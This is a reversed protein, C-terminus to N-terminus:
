DKLVAAAIKQAIVEVSDRATEFGALDPLIGSYQAVEEFTVGHLVPILTEKHLLAGLERETWFRGVLYAPTLLAIGARAKQLGKDMQLAQSKGPTVAIADFWVTVGLAELHIRLQDGIESGDIRAYSLFADCERNDHQALADHVRDVLVQERPTYRPGSSATRLQRNLDAIVARNHANVRGAERNYDAVVKKNHQDVKRNHADVRRKNERNVRDVERNLQAQAKRQAARMERNFKAVDFGRAVLYVEV